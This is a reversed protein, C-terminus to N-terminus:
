KPLITSTFLRPGFKGLNNEDIVEVDWQFSEMLDLVLDDSVEPGTAEQGAGVIYLASTDAFAYFAMLLVVIGIKRM